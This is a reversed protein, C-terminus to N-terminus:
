GVRILEVNGVTRVKRGLAELTAVSAAGAPTHKPLRVLVYNVHYRDIIARRDATITGAAFFTTVADTRAALDDIFAQPKLPAVVRTGYTPIGWGDTLSALTVDDRRTGRFLAAYGAFQRDVLSYHREVAAPLLPRPVSAAVGPGMNVLAIAALALAGIGAAARAAGHGVSSAIARESGAIWDAVAIQLALMAFSIIRGYDWESAIWGYVYIVVTLALFLALADDRRRRLRGVVIPVGVLAPLVRVLVDQYMIRDRTTYQALAGTGLKLVPYYPWVLAALAGAAAIMLLPPVLRRWQSPGRGLALAGIAALLFVSVVPHTTVVVATGTATWVLWWREARDLYRKWAAVTLFAVGTAFTSPFALVGGFATLHFFASFDWPHPGWLFLMGLLAWFPAHAHTTFARVFLPFAVLFLVLNGIAAVKLSTVPGLGTVRSFLGVVVSYPSFFADPKHVGLFPQRPHFPHAALERVIASHEWFDDGASPRNYLNAVAGMAGVVLALVAYRRQALRTEGNTRLLRSASSPSV